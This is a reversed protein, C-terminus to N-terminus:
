AKTVGGDDLKSLEVALRSGVRANNYILVRNAALSEGDTAAEIRSLLFPTVAKGQISEASADALADHIAGEIAEPDMAAQRPIPNAVLAGGALGMAWKTRLIRALQEVSDVRCDVEFGSERTFFAPFGDSRFGLVPVGHTELVELTLGIDLISKAGACVVAVSSRALELLDASIDFTASAGRHVGGIGGTVFVEIGAAAAVIMTAAVTTAGDGGRAVVIPLDRRSVKAVEPNRGLHDLSEADLGVRIQGALIAITAPVSGQRRVIAEVRRATEVNAPYPMGHAIITSELAVVPRGEELAARVEPLLTLQSKM